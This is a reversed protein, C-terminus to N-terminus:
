GMEERDPQSQPRLRRCEEHVRLAEQIEEESEERLRQREAEIEDVSRPVHGRAKQAAWIQEMTKWFPDHPPPPVLPQVTVLVRGAPMPVKEDLELSGDAQLTGQLVIQASM